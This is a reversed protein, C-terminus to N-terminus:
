NNMEFSKGRADNMGSTIWVRDGIARGFFTSLKEFREAFSIHIVKWVGECPRSPCVANNNTMIEYCLIESENAQKKQFVEIILQVSLTTGDEFKPEEEIFFTPEISRESM